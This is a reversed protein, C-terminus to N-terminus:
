HAFTHLNKKQYMRYWRPVVHYSSDGLLLSCPYSDRERKRHANDSILHTGQNIRHSRHQERGAVAEWFLPFPPPPLGVVLPPICFPLETPIHACQVCTKARKAGIQTSLRHKNFFDRCRLEPPLKNLTRQQNPSPLLPLFSCAGLFSVWGNQVARVFNVQFLFSILDVQSHYYNRQLWSFACCLCWWGVFFFLFPLVELCDQFHSFRIQRITVEGSRWYFSM